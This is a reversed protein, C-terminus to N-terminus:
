KVYTTMTQVSKGASLPNLCTVKVLHSLKIRRFLSGQQYPIFSSCCLVAKGSHLVFAKSSNSTFGRYYRNQISGQLYPILVLLSSRGACLKNTQVSKGTSLPNLCASLAKLLMKCQRFLSGQLYPILVRTLYTVAM